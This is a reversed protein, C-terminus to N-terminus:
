PKNQTLVFAILDAIEQSSLQEKYNKPMVNDPYNPVVFASPNTISTYIYLAPSEGPVRGVATNGLNHWTPGTGPKNPDLNHCGVCGKSQHLQEGQKPDAKPMADLVEQPLGATVQDPKLDALLPAATPKAAVVQQGAAQAALQDGLQPSIILGSPNPACAVLALGVVLLLALMWIMRSRLLSIM